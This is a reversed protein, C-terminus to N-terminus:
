GVVRSEGKGPVIEGIAWARHGAKRISRLVADAKGADVVVVMGIGMNFVQYL